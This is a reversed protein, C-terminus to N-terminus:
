LPLDVAWAGPGLFLLAFSVVALLFYFDTTNKPLASPRHWKILTALVMLLGAAIAAGQTYLGITLLAGIIGETCAVLTAFVNAPRLGLKDYFHIQDKKFLFTKEYWFYLFILGLTARIMFTGLMQYDLLHPFLSVTQM